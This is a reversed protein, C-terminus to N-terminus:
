YLAHLPVFFVVFTNREIVVVRWPPRLNQALVQAARYGVSIHSGCCTSEEVVSRVAM